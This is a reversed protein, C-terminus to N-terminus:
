QLKLRLQELQEPTGVDIWYADGFDHTMLLEGAEIARQYPTWVAFPCSDGQMYQFIRPAIVQIGSFTVPDFPPDGQGAKWMGRMRGDEDRLLCSETRRALVGLTVLARRERHCAILRRLDYDCYIDSNHVIFDGDQELFARANKLAGGTGLIEPEHFLELDLGLGGRESIFHVVADALYHTNVAARTVGAARLRAAVHALMPAGGAEVLCKPTHRTLAGLRTGLGAALIM